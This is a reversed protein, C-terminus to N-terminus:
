GANFSGLVVGSKRPKKIETATAGNKFNTRGICDTSAAKAIEIAEEPTKAWVIFSDYEDYSYDEAEVNWLKM